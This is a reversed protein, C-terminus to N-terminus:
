EAATERTDAIWAPGESVSCTLEKEMDSQGGGAREGDGQAM